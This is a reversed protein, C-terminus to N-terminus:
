HRYFLWHLLINESIGTASLYEFHFLPALSIFPPLGPFRTFPVCKRHRTQNRNGWTEKLKTRVRRNMDVNKERVTYPLAISQHFQKSIRCYLHGSLQRRTKEKEWKACESNTSHTVFGLWPLDLERWKESSVYKWSGAIWAWTVRLFDWDRRVAILIKPFFLCRM